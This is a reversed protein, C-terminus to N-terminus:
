RGAVPFSRASLLVGKVRRINEKVAKVEDDPERRGASGYLTYGAGFQAPYPRSMHDLDDKFIDLTTKVAAYGESQAIIGRNVERLSAALGSVRRAQAAVVDSDQRPAPTLPPTTTQVGIDRHFVETPDGCSSAVDDGLQQQTAAMATASKAAAPIESVTEELKSVLTALGKATQEHLEARADTLSSVMPTLVHQSAGYILTTLGTLASAAQLFGSVTVLPPEGERRTLFEPYTVIPAHDPVPEPQPAPFSPQSIPMELGRAIAFAPEPLPVPVPLQSAPADNDQGTTVAPAAAEQPADTTGSSGSAVAKADEELLTDTDAESIGKTKLFAVKEERSERRVEDTQLFRRAVDLTSQSEDQAPSGEPEPVPVPENEKKDSDSM